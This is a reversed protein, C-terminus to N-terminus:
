QSFVGLSVNSVKLYFFSRRAFNELLLGATRKFYVVNCQYRLCPDGPGGILFVLRGLGTLVRTALPFGGYVCMYKTFLHLRLIHTVCQMGITEERTVHISPDSFTRLVEFSPVHM